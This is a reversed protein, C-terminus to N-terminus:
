NTCFTIENMISRNQTYDGECSSCESLRESWDECIEGALENVPM